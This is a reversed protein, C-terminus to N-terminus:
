VLKGSVPIYIPHKVPAALARWDARAVWDLYVRNKVLFRQGGQKSALRGAASHVRDFRHSFKWSIFRSSPVITVGSYQNCRGRRGRNARGCVMASLVNLRKGKITHRDGRPLTPKSTFTPPKRRPRRTKPRM